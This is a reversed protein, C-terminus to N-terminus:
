KIVKNGMRRQIFNTYVEGKRYFANDLIELHFPITTPVGKIIFEALARKMRAIAHSRTEGWAILKGILSDYYPPVSHGPYLCSDVRIGFGGPPLYDTIIGPSPLFDKDPDEANLRCEIAWGKIKIDEQRYSLPIGAALKIQEQVLDIGTVMETVPHEVQLRTNMEMFYFHNNRDLLFEVTGLSHYNVAQAATVAAEGMKERLEQDLCVSPAEELIKQHRRQVSCDREGLYIVHGQQDAMIQMEIHRPEELYKELYVREDGFAAEAEKQALQLAKKLDEEHHAIRMGRGGGGASAKVMIPFGIEKALSSAESWSKVVGPSGPIVPVGAKQMAERASAKAGMRKIAFAPPGIFTLNAASCMETFYPNEALFGYGPHIADAGTVRAASIINHMNLYSRSAPPPGICI